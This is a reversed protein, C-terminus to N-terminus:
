GKEKILLAVAKDIESNAADVFRLVGKRDV